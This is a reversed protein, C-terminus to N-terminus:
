SNKRNRNTRDHARAQQTIRANGLLYTYRVSDPTPIILEAFSAGPDHEYPSVTDM